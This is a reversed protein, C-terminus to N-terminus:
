LDLDLDLGDGVDPGGSSGEGDIDLQVDAPSESEFTTVEDLVTSPSAVNRVFQKEFTDGEDDDGGVGIEDFGRTSDAETETETEAETETETEAEVDTVLETATETEMDLGVESDTITEVESDWVSSVDTDVGLDTQATPELADDLGFEDTQGTTATPETPDQVADSIEARGFRDFESGVGTEAEASTEGSLQRADQQMIARQGDGADVETDVTEGGEGGAAPNAESEAESEADAEPRFDQVYLVSEIDEGEGVPADLDRQSPRDYRLRNFQIGLENRIDSVGERARRAAAGVRTDSVSDVLDSVQEGSTLELDTEVGDPTLVPDASFPKSPSPVRDSAAERARQAGRRLAQSASTDLLDSVQEGSTLQISTETGDPTLTTQADFPKSPTLTDRNINMDLTADRVRGAGRAAARGASRAARIGAEESFILPENDPFTARAARSGVKPVASLARNGVYGALEEGPQIAFASVRGATSSVRSAAAVAGSTAALSGTLTLASNVPHNILYEVGQKVATTGAEKAQGAYEDFDRGQDAPGEVLQTGEIADGLATTEAAKGLFEGAEILTAIHNPVNYSRAGARGLFAAKKNVTEAAAETTQQIGENKGPVAASVVDGTNEVAGGAVGGFFKGVPRTVYQNDTSGLRRLRHLQIALNV